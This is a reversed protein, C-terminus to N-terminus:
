KARRVSEIVVPKSPVDRMGKQTTTPVKKIGDVVDMGEIVHGFVTYGYGGTTTDRHNLFGNDVVNIFFQSTASDVVSTRAMTITGRLNKLGNGAENKIPPKTSKQNMEVTFGGGQIMFGDIVRHFITGDYFGDDVYSLFNKVTIPAKEEDLEIKIEGLSTKMVVVAPSAAQALGAALFIFSCASILNALPMPIEKNLGGGNNQVTATKDVPLIFRFLRWTKQNRAHKGTGTDM